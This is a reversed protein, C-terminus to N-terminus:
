VPQSWGSAQASMRCDLQGSIASGSFRKALASPTRFVELNLHSKSAGVLMKWRLQSAGILQGTSALHTDGKQHTHVEVVVGPVSGENRITVDYVASRPVLLKLSALVPGQLM